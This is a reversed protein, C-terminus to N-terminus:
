TWLSGRLNILKTLQETDKDYLRDEEACWLSICKSYDMAEFADHEMKRSLKWWWYLDMIGKDRACADDVHAKTYEDQYDGYDAPTTVPGLGREKEVFDVLMAFNAFLLGESRDLWGWSYGNRPNRIDLMHYRNYTHTRIWYWAREIINLM